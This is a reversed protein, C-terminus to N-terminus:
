HARPVEYEDFLPSRALGRVAPRGSPDGGGSGGGGSRGSSGGGSSSGGSTPPLGMAARHRKDLGDLLAVDEYRCVHSACAMCMLPHVRAHVCSPPAPEVSPGALVRRLASGFRDPRLVLLVRLM